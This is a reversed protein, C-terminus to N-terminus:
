MKNDVFNDFDQERVMPSTDQVTSLMLEQRYFSRASTGPVEVPTMFWPGRFYSKGRLISSFFILEIWSFRSISENVWEKTEWISHIQAISQKGNETAVYVYDGTKVVGSCIANYQQYHIHGEEANNVTLQINPKEKEVLAEQLQLEALEGKHKEVREKFVSMVRKPEWPTERPVMKCTNAFPWNKIKKFQRLKMSYRSECVYVDKELFGEPTFKIYDKASMVHCKEGLQTLPLAIHQESKFIEKELFKRTTVHFTEFPRLFVNGFMMKVGETNTWLREIYIIGPVKNEPVDYYVYDCPSYVKQDITMSEGQQTSIENEVETEHEEQLLKSQKITEAAATLHM